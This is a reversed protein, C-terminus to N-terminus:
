IKLFHKGIKNTYFVIDKNNMEIKEKCADVDIKSSQYININSLIGNMETKSIAIEMENQKIMSSTYKDYKNFNLEMLGLIFDKKARDNLYIFRESTNQTNYAVIMFKDYSMGINKEFEEQSIEIKSGDKYFELGNPRSRKVVYSSGNHTLTVTGSGGTAGVRLIESKAIKKPVKDFMTYVLSNFISSKGAGNSKGTDHDFGTVLVLGSSGFSIDAKEISFLNDIELREINM